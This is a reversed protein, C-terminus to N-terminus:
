ARSVRRFKEICSVPQSQATKVRIAAALWVARLAMCRSNVVVSPVTPAVCTRKRNPKGNASSDSAPTISTVPADSGRKPKDNQGHIASPAPACIAAVMSISAAIPSREKTTVM